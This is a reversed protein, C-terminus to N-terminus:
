YAGQSSTVVLRRVGAQGMAAIINAAGVSYTDIRHRTFPVGVTSLVADAGDVLTTVASGDRVDGPSVTLRPHTFPFEDARRTVAVAAHGADLAARALLRGTAGNAGFLVLKV